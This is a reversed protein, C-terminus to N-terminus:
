HNLVQSFSLIILKIYLKMVALFLKGKIYNNEEMEM